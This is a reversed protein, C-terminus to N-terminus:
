KNGAGGIPFEKDDVKSPLICYHQKHQHMSISRYPFVIM